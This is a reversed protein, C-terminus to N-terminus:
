KSKSVRMGLIGAATCLLFVLLEAGLVSWVFTRLVFSEMFAVLLPIGITLLSVCAAGAVCWPAIDSFEVDDTHTSVGLIIAIANVTVIPLTLAISLLVLLISGCKEIFDPTFYWIALMGPCVAGSIFLLTFALESGSVKRVDEIYGM